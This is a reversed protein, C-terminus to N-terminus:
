LEDPGEIEGSLELGIEALRVRRTEDTWGEARAARLVEGARRVATRYYSDPLEAAPPAAVYPDKAPNIEFRKRPM